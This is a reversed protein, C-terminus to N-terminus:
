GAQGSWVSFSFNNEKSFAVSFAPMSSVSLRAMCGAADTQPQQRLLGRLREEDIDVSYLVQVLRQFDHQILFNIHDQLQAALKERDPPPLPSGLAQLLANIEM